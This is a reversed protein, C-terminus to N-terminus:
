PPSIKYGSRFKKLLCISYIIYSFPSIKVKFVQALDTRTGHTRCLSCCASTRLWKNHGSTSLPGQFFNGCNNCMWCSCWECIFENPAEQNRMVHKQSEVLIGPMDKTHFDGCSSCQVQMDGCWDCNCIVIHLHVCTHKFM